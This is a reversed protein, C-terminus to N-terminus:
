KEKLILLFNGPVNLFKEIYKVYDQCNKPLDDFKRCEAISTKWGPFKAYGVQVKDLQKINSPFSELEKGDIKYSIGIEIEDLQDL